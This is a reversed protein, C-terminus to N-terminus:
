LLVSSPFSRVIKAGENRRNPVGNVRRISVDELHTMRSFGCYGNIPIKNDFYLIRKLRGINWTIGGETKALAGAAGREPELALM